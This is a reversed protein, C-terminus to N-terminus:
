QESGFPIYSTVHTASSQAEYQFVMHGGVSVDVCDIRLLQMERCSDPVQDIEQNFAEFVDVM